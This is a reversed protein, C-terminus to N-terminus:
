TVRTQAKFQQNFIENVTQLSDAEDPTKDYRIESIRAFRLALGSQYRKSAQIGEFVCKVVIKPTVVVGWSEKKIAIEELAKTIEQFEVDTLGKFTKGVIVFEENEEDYAALLYDSLWGTRRGHGREAGVIVLDLEMEQKLKLWHKGRRGALYPGDLAKIMAGEYGLEVFKDYLERIEDVERVQHSEMLRIQGENPVLSVLIERRHSYPDDILQKDDKLLIDFAFYVSPIKKAHEEAKYKRKRRVLDQFFVPKGDVFAAIEGDLIISQYGLAKSAAVLDPFSATIDELRRSYIRAVGENAVHLQARMGDMKPELAAKQGHRELAEAITEAKEALMLGVPRFIKIKVEKLAREGSKARTATEGPDGLLMRARRVLDSSANFATAIAEDLMGVRFGTRTDETLFRAVYKVELPSLDYFIRKIADTRARISGTGTMTSINKLASSIELVSLQKEQQKTTLFQTLDTRRTSLAFECMRGFDADQRYHKQIETWSKGSLERVVRAVTRWGVGIKLTPDVIGISFYCIAALEDDSLNEESLMEAVLANKEKRKATASVEDMVRCFKTFQFLAEVATGFYKSVSNM